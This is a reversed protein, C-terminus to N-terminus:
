KGLCSVPALQLVEADGSEMTADGYAGPMKRDHDETQELPISGGAEESGEKILRPPTFKRSGLKPVRTLRGPASIGRMKKPPAAPADGKAKGKVPAAEADAANNANGEGKSGAHMAHVLKTLDSVTTAPGIKSPNVEVGFLQKIRSILEVTSFSDMGVSFLASSGLVETHGAIAKITDTILTQVEKITLARDGAQSSDAGLTFQHKGGHLFSARNPYVGVANERFFLECGLPLKCEIADELDQLARFSQVFEVNSRLQMQRVKIDNALIGVDSLSTMNFATGPLGQSRRYRILADMFANASSYAARGRGGMLSAVSSIVVFTELELDKSHTHLYWAGLAKCSGVKLLDETKADTLITDMSIGAVHFIAKLPYDPRSNAFRVLDAMEKEKATDAVKVEVSCGPTKIIDEFLSTVREPDKTVTIVFHRAGKEFASRVIKSGFGGAGGTILYTADAHFIRQPVQVRVPVPTGETTYNSLVVKGVHKGAKILDIANRIKDMPYITTPIPHYAGSGLLDFVEATTKITLEPDDLALRDMDIATFLANKRLALLGIKANDYIDLKGIELFRGGVALVQIGLRQHKGALSNLVADMGRNNTDRMIDAFWSTSRSDYIHEVGMARVAARKDVSATAYVIAGVHKCVSIAAHGVGGAAAHVLVRDGKKIRAINILAHHATNYVSQTSAAVEFSISDILKVVRNAPAILRNAFCSAEATAVRDGVKVNTVGPGVATVVGAAEMGLHRGYYSGEYSLEPLMNIAILVDRFNLAAAHIDVTVQNEGPPPLTVTQFDVSVQTPTIM